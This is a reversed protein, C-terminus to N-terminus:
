DTDSRCSIITLGHECAYIGAFCRNSFTQVTGDSMECTVPQFVDLCASPCKARATERAPSSAASVVGTVGIAGAALLTAITVGIRNKM